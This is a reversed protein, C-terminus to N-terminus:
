ARGNPSKNTQRKFSLISFALLIGRIEDIRHGPHLLIRRFGASVVVISNGIVSDYEKPIEAIGQCIIGAARGHGAIENNTHIVHGM